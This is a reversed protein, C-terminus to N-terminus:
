GLPVVSQTIIADPQFTKTSNDNKRTLLLFRQRRGLPFKRFLSRAQLGFAFEIAVVLRDWSHSRQSWRPKFDGLLGRQL